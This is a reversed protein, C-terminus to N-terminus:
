RLASLRYTGAGTVTAIYVFPAEDPDLDYIDQTNAELYAYPNDGATTTAINVRPNTGGTLAFSTPILLPVPTGAFRAGSFTITVATGPLPGGGTAVGSAGIATLNNIATQVAAANDNFNIAASEIRSFPETLKFTGGTPSGPLVLSQVANTAATSPTAGTKGVAVLSAVDVWVKVARCGVPLAVAVATTSTAGTKRWFPSSPSNRVIALTM